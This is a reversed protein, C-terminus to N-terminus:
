DFLSPEIAPEERQANPKPPRGQPRLTQGLHLRKATAEVWREAGFPHGRKVSRRMAKLEGESQPENVREAWDDPCPLPWPILLHNAAVLRCGARVLEGRESKWPGSVPGSRLPNPAAPTSGGPKTPFVRRANGGNLVHSVCGSELMRLIRGMRSSVPLVHRSALFFLRSEKEIWLCWYPMLKHFRDLDPSTLFV